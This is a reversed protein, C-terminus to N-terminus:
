TNLRDLLLLWFFFTHKPMVCSKWIWSTPEPAKDKPSMHAYAKGSSYSKQDGLVIWKDDIESGICYEIMDELDNIQNAAVMSLPLHFNDYIGENAVSCAEKITIDQDKSFSFLQPLHEM